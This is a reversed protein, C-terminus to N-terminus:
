SNSSQKHEGSKKQLKGSSYILMSSGGVLQVTMGAMLSIAAGTLQMTPILLVCGVATALTAAAALPVQVWFLRAATVGYTAISGAYGVGASAMIWVFVDAYRAYEPEYILTLVQRGLLLVVLVGVLGLLGALLILKLFLSRFARVDGYAYYRAMQPATAQGLAGVVINGAVVAYAMAAFFGVAQEGVYHEIAYRPFNVNLSVLSAAVGLPLALWVLRRLSSAGWRPNLSEVGRGVMGLILRGSRLDYGFLITAWALALGVAGWVVSGTLYVGLGLMMLSLPGKIMMSCAIRDMRERQQLLGYLVDSLAEFSKALGVVLIVIATERRYGVAVVTVCITLFALMTTVLRLGLYDGFVYERRADTAQVQRLSLNTLLIIPATVALGLAFQGVMTPSGLKALVVLMGWQCLVYVLNGAFIWSINKRLSPAFPKEARLRYM